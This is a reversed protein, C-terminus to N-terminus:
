KELQPIGPLTDLYVKKGDIRYSIPSTLQMAYLVQEISEDELIGSFKFSKADDNEFIFEVDYKRELKTSLDILSETEIVLQGTRWSSIKEGDVQNYILINGSKYIQGSQEGNERVIASLPIRGEKRIFAAKQNPELYVQKQMRVPKDSNKVLSIRGELLTTEIIGEEPYSKVNFSTGFVRVTIDSTTVVFIRKPDPVVKFFAEGELSVERTKQSFNPNYRLTTGANLWAESSDPLIIHTRSGLPTTIEALEGMQQSSGYYRSTALWTLGAALIVAAAMRLFRPMRIQKLQETAASKQDVETKMREWAGEQHYKFNPDAIGTRAWLDAWQHFIEPHDKDANMWAELDRVEDHTALGQIFKTIIIDISESKNKM